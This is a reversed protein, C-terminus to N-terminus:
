RSLLLMRLKIELTVLQLMSLHIFYSFHQVASSTYNHPPESSFGYGEEGPIRFLMSSFFNRRMYKLQQKFHVKIYPFGIRCTQQQQIEPSEWFLKGQIRLQREMKRDENVNGCSYLESQVEEGRLRQAVTSSGSSEENLYFTFSSAKREM